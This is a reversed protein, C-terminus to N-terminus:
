ENVLYRRYQEISCWLIRLERSQSFLLRCSKSLGHLRSAAQPLCECMCMYPRLQERCQKAALQAFVGVVNIELEVGLFRYRGQLSEKPIQVLNCCPMTRGYEYKIVEVLDQPCLDLRTTEADLIQSTETNVILYPNSANQSM